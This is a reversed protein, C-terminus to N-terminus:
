KEGLEADTRAKMADIERAVRVGEKFAYDPRTQLITKIWAPLHEETETFPQGSISSIQELLRRLREVERLHDAHEVWQGELAPTGVVENLDNNFDVDYRQIM